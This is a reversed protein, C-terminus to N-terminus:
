VAMAFHGSNAVLRLSPWRGTVVAKRHYASMRERWREAPNSHRRQARNRGKRFEPVRFATGGTQPREVARLLGIPARDSVTEAAKKSLWGPLTRSGGRLSPTGTPTYIQLQCEGYGRADLERALDYFPTRRGAVEVIEGTPMEFRADTFLRLRDDTLFVARLSKM